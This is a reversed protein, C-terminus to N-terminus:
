WQTKKNICIKFIIRFVNRNTNILKYHENKTLQKKLLYPTHGHAWSCFVIISTM